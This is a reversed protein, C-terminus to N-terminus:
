GSAPTFPLGHGVAVLQRISRRLFHDWGDRCIAYCDLQPTLGRHEFHLRTGTDDPELEFVVTTGLWENPQPLNRDHQEVCTWIMATPRDAVDVRFVVYDGDDSWNLRIRQGAAGVADGDTTWWGDSGGPRAIADYVAEPSADYHVDAVFGAARLQATDHVQRLRVIRGDQVTFHEVVRMSGLREVDMDYLLMAEDGAQMEALLDVRRTLSGFGRLADAFSAKTPYDNIPVEVELPDALLRIAADFDQGTWAGHYALATTLADM